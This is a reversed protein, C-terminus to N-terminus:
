SPFAHVDVAADRLHLGFADHEMVVGMDADIDRGFLEEVIVVGDHEGAAGLLRAVQRHGAALEVADMEGHFEQRLLVPADAAFCGRVAFRDEGAALMDDDDAAAVGAGVADAGRDALARQRDGIEFNQGAGGSCSFLTSVQGFQGSFSRVEDLWSSPASRSKATIVVRKEPALPCTLFSWQTCTSSLNLGTGPLSNSSSASSTSSAMPKTCGTCSPM